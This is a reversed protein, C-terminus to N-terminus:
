RQLRQLPNHLQGLQTSQVPVAFLCAVRWSSQLHHEGPVTGGSSLSQDEASSGTGRGFNSSPLYSNDPTVEVVPAVQTQMQVGGPLDALLDQDVVAEDDGAEDDGTSSRTGGGKLGKGNSRTLSNSGVGWTAADAAAAEAQEEATAM